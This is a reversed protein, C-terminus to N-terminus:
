REEYKKQFLETTKREQHEVTLDEPGEELYIREWSQIRGHGHVDYMKAAEKYSPGDQM